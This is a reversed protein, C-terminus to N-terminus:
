KVDSVTVSFPQAELINFADIDCWHKRITLLAELKNGGLQCKLRSQTRWLVPNCFADSIWQPNKKKQPGKEKMKKSNQYM